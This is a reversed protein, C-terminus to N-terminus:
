FEVFAGVDTLAKVMYPATEKRAWDRQLECVFQAISMLKAGAQEMRKLAMKHANYSTGGVADTIVYVEYGENLADLAPFALCVETWLANIVLKKRGTKKVAENFDKDEWANVNTRDIAKINKLAHQLPPITPKNIGTEVNVSSLVVPLRYNTAIEAVNTINAVLIHRPMSNISAVQIPQYDIFLVAANKPTLLHDTQQDRIPYSSM